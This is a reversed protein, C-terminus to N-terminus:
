DLSVMGDSIRAEGWTQLQRLVRRGFGGEGEEPYRPQLERLKGESLASPSLGAM